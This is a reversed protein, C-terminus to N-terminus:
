FKLSNEYLKAKQEDNWGSILRTTVGSFFSSRKASLIFWGSAGRELIFETAMPTGRKFYSNPLNEAQPQVSFRLGKWLNKPLDKQALRKEIKFIFAVVSQYSATRVKAKGNAEDLMQQIAKQNQENVKIKSM